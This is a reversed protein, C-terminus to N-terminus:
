RIGLGKRVQLVHRLQALRGTGPVRVRRLRSRAAGQDQAVPVARVEVDQRGDDRRVAVRRVHRPRVVRRGRVVGARGATRGEPLDGDDRRDGPQEEEDAQEHVHGAQAHRLQVRGQGRM